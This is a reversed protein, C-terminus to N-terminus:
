HSFFILNMALYFVYFGILIGSEYRKLTKGRWLFVYVLSIGIVIMPIEFLIITPNVRFNSILVGSGAALLMNCINSGMIDGVAIGGSERKIATLDAALEPLSTGLSIILIGVILEPINLIKALEEGSLLTIEASVLLISLGVVSFFINRKYSYKEEKLKEEKKKEEVKILNIGDRDAIFEKIERNIKELRKESKIIFILYILYSIVLILGEIFTLVLDLAFIFFIFVAVFLM